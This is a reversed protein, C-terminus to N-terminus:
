VENRWLKASWYLPWLVSPFFAFVARLDAVNDSPNLKRLDKYVSGYTFVAILVYITLAIKLKMM